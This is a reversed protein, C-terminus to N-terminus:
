RGPPGPRTRRRRARRRGNASRRVSSSVHGCGGQCSGAGRRGAVGPGAGGRRRAGGPGAAGRGGSGGPGAPGAGGCGGRGRLGLPGQADHGAEVHPDHAGPARARRVHHAPADEAGGASPAGLAAPRTVPARATVAPCSTSIRSAIFISFSIKAGTAPVTTLTLQLSPSVTFVPSVSSTMPQASQSRGPRFLNKM